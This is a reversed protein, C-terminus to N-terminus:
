NSSEKTELGYGLNYLELYFSTLGMQFKIDKVIDKM